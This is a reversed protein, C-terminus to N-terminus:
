ATPIVDDEEHPHSNFYNFLQETIIIFITMRKTLIHTSIWKIYRLLDKYGDDEEHPHSNFDLNDLLQKADIRDDEEHPHSNFNM